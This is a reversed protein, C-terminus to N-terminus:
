VGCVICSTLNGWTNVKNGCDIVDYQVVFGACDSGMCSVDIIRVCRVTMNRKNCQCSVPWHLM